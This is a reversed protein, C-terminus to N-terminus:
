DQEQPLSRDPRFEITIGYCPFLYCLNEEYFEQMWPNLNFIKEHLRKWWKRGKFPSRFRLKLSIIELRSETYFTPVQRKFQLKESQSYYLFSYLGFFRVHTPDSYHYPNSFHPVLLQCIGDSKLVRIVETLLRDFNNIHEFLSRAYLKDVSADPLFALGDELNAVIDVNELDVLDIGIRGDESFSKAKDGCGLEVVVPNPGGLVAGLDIKIDLIPKAM